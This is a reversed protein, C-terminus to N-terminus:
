LIKALLFACVRLAAAGTYGLGRLLASQSLISVQTKGACLLYRFRSKYPQAESYDVCSDLVSVM